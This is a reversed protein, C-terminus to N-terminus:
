FIVNRDFSDATFRKIKNYESPDHFRSNETLVEHLIIRTCFAIDLLGVVANKYWELSSLNNFGGCNLICFCIFSLNIGSAM